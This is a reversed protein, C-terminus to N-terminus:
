VVASYPVFQRCGTLVPHAQVIKPFELPLNSEHAIRSLKDAVVNKESSVHDTLLGVPNNIMAACQLRGLAKGIPSHKGAKKSWSESVANDGSCLAVPYPNHDLAATEQLRFCIGIFTVLIDAYELCNIDIFLGSNNYKLHLLTRQCIVENWELYWWFGLSACYGGAARLSSDSFGHAMPTRPILHSIPCEKSITPDSLAQLILCLEKRLTAPIRFQQKCRHIQRATETGEL